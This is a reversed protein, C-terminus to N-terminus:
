VEVISSPHVRTVYVAVGCSQCKDFQISLGSRADTVTGISGIPISHMGNRIPDLTRVRKGKWDGVRRSGSPPRTKM